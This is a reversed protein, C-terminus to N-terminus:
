TQKPLARTAARALLRGLRVRKSTRVDAESGHVFAELWPEGGRALVGGLDFLSLADCGADRAIAVDVALEGPDRYTPEDEFAGAGVCGLSVGAARAWRRCARATAAALLATADRRRVAGRSWGELLSTYMMISVHTAALGDVPTGLLAQWGHEGARDLAVVPWVALSTSTGRSALEDVTVGLIKRAHALSDHPRVASRLASATGTPRGRTALAALTRAQAFPPELDLLVDVPEVADCARLTLDRFSGANDVNAWRGEEDGLMPWIAVDVGADRLARTADPLAGLHWPRVALVLELRYRALLDLTRKATVEAYPLTECYVRRRM